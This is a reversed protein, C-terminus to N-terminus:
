RDNFNAKAYDSILQDMIARLDQDWGAALAAASRGALPVRKSYNKDLLVRGPGDQGTEFVIFRIAMEAVPHTGERFDGDLENVSAEIAMSPALSSGPELIMGFAGSSKLAVRIPEALAREPSVFFEAYPDREYADDGVRYVFSRSQYRPSITVHELAVLNTRSPAVANGAPLNLAFEQRKWGRDSGCGPFITALVIGLGLTIGLALKM